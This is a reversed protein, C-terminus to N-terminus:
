TIQLTKPSVQLSTHTLFCKTQYVDKEFNVSFLLHKISGYSQLKAKSYAMLLDLHVKSGEPNCVYILASSSLGPARVIVKAM